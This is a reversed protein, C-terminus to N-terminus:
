WGAEELLAQTKADAPKAVLGGRAGLTVDYSAGDLMPLYAASGYDSDVFPLYRPFQRKLTWLDPFADANLAHVSRPAELEQKPDGYRGSLRELRYLNPAGALLAPLKWRILRADLQWEDGRLEFSRHQGDASDLRASWRQPEIQRLSIRAVREEGGFQLYHFLGAALLGLGLGAALFGVALLVRLLVGLWQRRRLARRLGAAFILGFLLCGIAPVLLFLFPSM